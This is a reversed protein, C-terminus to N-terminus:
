ALKEVALQVKGKLDEINVRGQSVAEALLKDIEDPDFRRIRRENIAAVVREALDGLRAYSLYCAHVHLDKLDQIPTEGKISQWMQHTDQQLDEIPFWIIDLKGRSKNASAIAMAVNAIAKASVQINEGNAPDAECKWFSLNNAQTRLDITIADAPVDSVLLGATPDWKARTIKRALFM